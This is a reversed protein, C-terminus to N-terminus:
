WTVKFGEFFSRSTSRHDQRVFEDSRYFTDAITKLNDHPCVCVSVCVCVKVLHLMFEHTGSQISTYDFRYFFRSAESLCVVSFLVVERRRSCYYYYYDYYYYYYPDFYNKFEM